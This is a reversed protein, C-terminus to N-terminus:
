DSKWVRVTGREGDDGTSALTKGDPSWCLDYVYGTHGPLEGIKFGTEVNWFHVVGRSDGVAIEKGDPSYAAVHAKADGVSFRCKENGSRVIYIVVNGSSTTVALDCGNPAFTLREIREGRAVTWEGSIKAIETTTTRDGIDFVYITGDEDATALLEGNGSVAPMGGPTTDICERRTIDWIQTVQKTRSDGIADVFMKTGDVNFAISIVGEYTTPLPDTVPQFTECDLIRIYYDSAKQNLDSRRVCAVAIWNKAPCIAVSRVNENPAEPVVVEHGDSVRMARLAGAGMRDAALAGVLVIQGDASFRVAQGSHALYMVIPNTPLDLDWYLLNGGADGSVAQRDDPAIAVATINTTHGPLIPPPGEGALDWVRLNADQGGTLVLRNSCAIASIPQECRGLVRGPEGPDAIRWVRVEGNTNGSVLRTLDPSFTLASVVGTDDLSSSEGTTVDFVIIASASRVAIAILNQRCAVKTVDVGTVGVPIDVSEGSYPAAWYSLTEDDQVCAVEGNPGMCTLGSHTTGDPTARANGTSDLTYVNISGKDAVAAVTDDGPLFSAGIIGPDAPSAVADRSHTVADWVRIAGDSSASLIRRGDATWAVTCIAEAHSPTLRGVSLDLRSHQYGWLWSRHQQPITDLADRATRADEDDISRAALRLRDYAANAQETVRLDAMRRVVAVSALGITVFFLLSAFTWKRRVLLTRLRYSATIGRARVPQHRLYRRVDDGLKDADAYRQDRNKELCKTIISVLESPLRSGRFDPERERLARLAEFISEGHTVFPLRGVLTEFLMCGLSFVDSRAEVHQTRGEAQEPSMYAVTGVLAGTETRTVLTTRDSNTIRAVGFDLVRVSGGDDIMINSPKLDRHVVGVSHAHAVADCVDAFLALVERPRLGKTHVYDIWERGSVHEMSIYAQHPLVVAGDHTLDAEGTEYVRAIGPHQLRALIEGERAFRLRASRSLMTPYLWKLAVIRRPRAQEARFVVGTSGRGLVELLRFPGLHDASPVGLDRPDILQGDLATPFDSLLGGDAANELTPLSREDLDLLRELEALLEADDGCAERLFSDREEVALRRADNFLSGIQEYRDPTM